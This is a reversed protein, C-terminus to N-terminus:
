QIKIAKNIKKSYERLITVLYGIFIRFFSTARVTWAM